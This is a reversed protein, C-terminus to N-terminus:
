IREKEMYKKLNLEDQYKDRKAIVEKLEKIEKDRDRKDEIKSLKSRKFKLYHVCNGIRSAVYVGESLDKEELKLEKELKLIAVLCDHMLGMISELPRDMVMPEGM